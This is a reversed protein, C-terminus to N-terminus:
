RGASFRCCPMSCSIPAWFDAALGLVAGVAATLSEGFGGAAVVVFAVGVRAAVFALSAAAGDGVPQPLGSM